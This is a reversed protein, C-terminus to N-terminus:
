ADIPIIQASSVQPASQRSSLGELLKKAQQEALDETLDGALLGAMEVQFVLETTLTRELPDGLLQDLTRLDTQPCIATVHVISTKFVITLWIRRRHTFSIFRESPSRTNVTM